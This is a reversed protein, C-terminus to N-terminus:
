PTSRTTRSSGPWGSSYTFSSWPWIVWPRCSTPAREGPPASPRSRGRSRRPARSGGGGSAGPSGASARRPSRGRRPSARPTSGDRRRTGSRRSRDRPPAGRRPSAGRTRTGARHAPAVHADAQAVAAEHELSFRGLGEVHQHHVGEAAVRYGHVEERALGEADVEAVQRPAADEGHVHRVAVQVQLRHDAPGRRLEPQVRLVDRRELLAQQPRGVPHQHGAVPRRRSSSTTLAAVSGRRGSALVTTQLSSQLSRRPARFRQPGGIPSGAPPAPLVRRSVTRRHSNRGPRPPPGPM